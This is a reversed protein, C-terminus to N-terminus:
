KTEYNPEESTESSKTECFVGKRRRRLLARVEDALRGSPRARGVCRRPSNTGYNAKQWHTPTENRLFRRKKAETSVSADPDEIQMPGVGTLFSVLAGIRENTGTAVNRLLTFQRDDADLRQEALRARELLATAMEELREIREM